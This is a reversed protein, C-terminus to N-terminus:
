FVGIQIRLQKPDQQALFSKTSRMFPVFRNGRFKDAYSRVSASSYTSLKVLHTLGEEGDLVKSERPMMGTVGEDPSM